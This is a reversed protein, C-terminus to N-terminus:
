GVALLDHVIPISEVVIVLALLIVLLTFARRLLLSTEQYVM